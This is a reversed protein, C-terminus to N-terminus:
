SKGAYERVREALKVLEEGRRKDDQDLLVTALETHLAESKGRIAAIKVAAEANAMTIKTRAREVAERLLRDGDNLKSQKRRWVYFATIAVMTLALGSLAALKRGNAKLWTLAVRM